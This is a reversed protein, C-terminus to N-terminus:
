GSCNEPPRVAVLQACRKGQAGEAVCQHSCCEGANECSAGDTRCEVSYEMNTLETRPRLNKGPDRHCELCWGMSIPKEVRVVEMQDIRGHCSACGIALKEGNLEVFFHASHDFYAHDPLKHVRVWPVPKGTKWSKRLPALLPSDKKVI